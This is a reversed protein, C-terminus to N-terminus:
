NGQNRRIIKLVLVLVGAALLLAGFTALGTYANALGTATLLLGFM